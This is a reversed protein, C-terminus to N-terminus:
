WDALWQRLVCVCVCVRARACSVALPEATLPKGQAVVEEFGM